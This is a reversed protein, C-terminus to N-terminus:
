FDETPKHRDIVNPEVFTRNPDKTTGKTHWIEGATKGQNMYKDVAALEPTVEGFTVSSVSEPKIWSSPMPKNSDGFAARGLAKMTAEHGAIGMLTSRDAKLQGIRAAARDIIKRM